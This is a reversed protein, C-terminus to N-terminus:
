SGLVTSEHAELLRNTVPVSRGQQRALRAVAGNRFELAKAVATRVWSLAEVSSLFEPWWTADAETAAAAACVRVSEEFLERAENAHQELYEGLSLGHVALPLGVVCNFGMKDAELAAFSDDDVESASIGGKALAAVLPKALPGCFPSPRLQEFFDGKSTFWILGRTSTPLHHLLPRIWGNQVTVIREGPVGDLEGLVEELAEERVCALRVGGPDTRAETWGASRTVDITQIGASELAHGLRRGVEGPGIVYVHDLHEDM